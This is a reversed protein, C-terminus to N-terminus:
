APSTASSRASRPLTTLLRGYDKTGARADIVALFDPQTSDASGSWLYLYDSPATAVAGQACLTGASLLRLALTLLKTRRRM